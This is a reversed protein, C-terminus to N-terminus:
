RTGSALLSGHFSLASGAHKLRTPIDGKFGPTRMQLIPM